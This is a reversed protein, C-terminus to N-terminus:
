PSSLTHSRMQTTDVGSSDDLFPFCYVTTFRCHLAMWGATLSTRSM